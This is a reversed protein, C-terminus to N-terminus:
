GPDASSAMRHEARWSEAFSMLQPFFAEFHQQLPTELAQLPALASALPNARSLRQGVGAFAYEIMGPNRYRAPLQHVDMYHLFDLLPPPLLAAHRHLLARLEDSFRELPVETWRAFDRALCYDFWIDVLIGAYRRYPAHLLAKAARVEPHADTYTDIARHLVIGAIVGEPLQPDPRGHTFDGLM